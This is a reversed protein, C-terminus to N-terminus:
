GASAAKSARLEVEEHAGVTHLPPPWGTRLWLEFVVVSVFEVSDVPGLARTPHLGHRNVDRAIHLVAPGKQFTYASLYTARSPNCM